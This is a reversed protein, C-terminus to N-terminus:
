KLLFVFFVILKEALREGAMYCFCNVELNEWKGEPVFEMIDLPLKVWQDGEIGYFYVRQARMGQNVSTGLVLIRSRGDSTQLCNIVTEDFPFESYAVLQLTDADLLIGAKRDLGGVHPMNLLKCVVFIENAAEHSFSGYYLKVGYRDIKTRNM